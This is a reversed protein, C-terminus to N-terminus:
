KAGARYAALAALLAEGGVKDTLFHVVRPAPPGPSLLVGTFARDVAGALAEARDLRSLLDTVVARLDFAEDGILLATGEPVAALMARARDVTGSPSATADGARVHRTHETVAAQAAVGMARWLRDGEDGLAEDTAPDGRASLLLYALLADAQTPTM